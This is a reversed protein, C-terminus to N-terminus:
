KRCTLVTGQGQLTVRDTPYFPTQQHVCGDAVRNCCWLVTETAGDLSVQQDTVFGSLCKNNTYQLQGEGTGLSVQQTKDDPWM